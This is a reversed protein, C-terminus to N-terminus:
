PHDKQRRPNAGPRDILAAITEVLEQDSVPSKVLAAEVQAAVKGDMEANSFIIVPTPNPAGDKLLPLLDLGCGDPLTIDLIVLDFVRGELLRKAEELDAAATMEVADELQAAVVRVLDADDEVYLLSPWAEPSSRVAKRLAAALREEDLPKGMWDIIGLAAAPVEKRAAEAKASIVVTALDRTEEHDHLERILSIGDQGPLMIDSTMADYHGKALRAKAQEADFAIDTVFGNEELMM